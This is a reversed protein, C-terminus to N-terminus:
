RREEQAAQHTPQHDPPTSSKTQWTMRATKPTDIDHYVILSHPVIAKGVHHGIENAAVFLMARVLARDDHNITITAEHDVTTVMEEIVTEIEDASMRPDTM